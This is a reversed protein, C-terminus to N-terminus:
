KYYDHILQENVVENNENRADWELQYVGRNIEQSMLVKVIDGLPNQVIVSVISREPINIRIETLTDFPNPFPENLRFQKPFVGTSDNPPPGVAIVEKPPITPLSECAVFVLIFNLMLFVCVKM